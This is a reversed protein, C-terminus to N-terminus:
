LPPLGSKGVELCEQNFVRYRVGPVQGRTRM